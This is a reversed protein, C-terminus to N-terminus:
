IRKSYRVFYTNNDVHNLEDVEYNVGFFDFLTFCDDDMGDNTWKKSLEPFFVKLEKILIVDSPDTVDLEDSFFGDLIWWLAQLSGITPVQVVRKFTFGRASFLFIYTDKPSDMIQLIKRCMKCM